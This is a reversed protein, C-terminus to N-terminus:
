VKLNELHRAIHHYQSLHPSDIKYLLQRYKLYNRWARKSPEARGRKTLEFSVAANIFGKLLKMEDNEEFRRSFWISELAEHADYYRQEDLCKVFENLHRNM